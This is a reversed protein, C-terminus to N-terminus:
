WLMVPYEAEVNQLRMMRSIGYRQYSIMMFVRLNLVLPLSLILLLIKLVLYLFEQNKVFPHIMPYVLLLELLCEMSGMWELLVLRGQCLIHTLYHVLIIKKWKHISLMDVESVLVTLIVIGVAADYDQKTIPEPSLDLMNEKSSGGKYINGEWNNM